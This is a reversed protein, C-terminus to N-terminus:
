KLIDSKENAIWKQNFIQYRAYHVRNKRLELIKSPGLDKLAQLIDAVKKLAKTIM